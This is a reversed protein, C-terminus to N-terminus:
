RRRWRRLAHGVVQRPLGRRDPLKWRHAMLGTVFWPFGLLGPRTGSAELGFRYLERYQEVLQAVTPRNCTLAFYRRRQAADVPARRLAELVRDPVPVAFRDALFGLTEALPLSARRRRAEALFVEWDLRGRAGRVIAHADVVWRSNITRGYKLGALCVHLMLDAASPACAAEGGIEVFHARDWLGAEVEPSSGYEILYQHLDIGPKGDRLADVSCLWPLLGEPIPRHRWGGRELAQLARAVDAPRVLLDIDAMPRLAPDQYGDVLLALGKLLMAPCGAERLLRLALATDALLNRNREATRARVAEARARYGGDDDLRDAVLPLLRWDASDLQGAPPAAARWAALAAAAEDGDLLAARLLQQTGPAPWLGHDTIVPAAVGPLM